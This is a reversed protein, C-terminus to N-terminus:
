RSFKLRLANVVSELKTRFNQRRLRMMSLMSRDPPPIQWWCNSCTFVTKDPKGCSPCASFTGDDNVTVQQGNTLNLIM